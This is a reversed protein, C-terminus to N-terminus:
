SNMGQSALGKSHMQHTPATETGNFRTDKLNFNRDRQNIDDDVQLEEDDDM